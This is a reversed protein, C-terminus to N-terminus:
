QDCITNNLRQDADAIIQKACDDEAYIIQFANLVAFVRTLSGYYMEKRFSSITYIQIDMPFNIEEGNYEVHSIMFHALFDQPNNLLLDEVLVVLDLDSSKRM